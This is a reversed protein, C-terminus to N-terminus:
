SNTTKIRTIFNQIIVENETKSVMHANGLYEMGLYNATSQFPLWFNEGLHDGSSCSIAAMKKGRLKRGLEKKITLLDTFRDFFTKMIASMAYWYVPTVFIFSDYNEILTQILKLYDDDQNKHEYDYYGIQYDNLDIIEWDTFQNLTQALKSADGDKRASGVIIAAKM